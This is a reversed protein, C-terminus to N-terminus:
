FSPMLQEQTEARAPRCASGQARAGSGGRRDRGARLERPSRVSLLPRQEKDFRASVGSLSDVLAGFPLGEGLTDMVRTILDTTERKRLKGALALSVLDRASADLHRRKELVRVYDLQKRTAPEPTV